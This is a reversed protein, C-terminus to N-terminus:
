ILCKEMVSHTHKSDNSPYLLSVCKLFDILNITTFRRNEIPGDFITLFFLLPISLEMEYDSEFM